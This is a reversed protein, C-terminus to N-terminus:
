VQSNHHGLLREGRMQSASTRNLGTATAGKCNSLCATFQENQARCRTKQVGSHSSLVLLFILLTGRSSGAQNDLLASADLPFTRHNIAASVNSLVTQIAESIIKAIHTQLKAYTCFHTTLYLQGRSSLRQSQVNGLGHRPLFSRDLV